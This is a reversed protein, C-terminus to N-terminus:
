ASKRRKLGLVTERHLIYLGSAIVLGGGVLIWEDPLDQWLLWGILTGWIMQSYQFPAVVAAPARRVAQVMLLSALGGLTGGIASLSLDALTPPVFDFATLLGFWLALPLMQSVSFSAVPEKAGYRRVLIVSLAFATMAILAALTGVSMFGDAPRLMIIVGIFGALVASWRRWGVREGLLPVSLATILIPAAFFIAYVDTMPLLSFAYIGGYAGIISIGGRAVHLWPRRTAIAHRGGHTAIFVTIPLLAFLANFFIIQHLPYGASLWKLAADMMTACFFTLAAFGIGVVIDPGGRASAPLAALANNRLSVAM